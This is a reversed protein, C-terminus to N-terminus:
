APQRRLHEGKLKKLLCKISALWSSTLVGPPCTL